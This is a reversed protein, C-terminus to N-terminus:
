NPHPVISVRSVLAATVPAEAPQFPLDGLVECFTVSFHSPNYRLPIFKICSFLSLVLQCPLLEALFPQVLRLCCTLYFFATHGEFVLQVNAINDLRYCSPQPFLHGVRYPMQTAGDQTGLGGPSEGTHSKQLSPIDGASALSSSCSINSVSSLYIKEAQLLSLLPKIATKFSSSPPKLFSLSM